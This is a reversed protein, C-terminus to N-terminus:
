KSLVHERAQAISWTFELAKNNNDEEVEQVLSHNDIENELINQKM